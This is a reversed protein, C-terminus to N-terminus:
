CPSAQQLYVDVHLQNNFPNPQVRLRHEAEILRKAKDAKTFAGADGVFYPRMMEHDEHSLIHCHWVYAGERDFTAIVRTVEGPHM